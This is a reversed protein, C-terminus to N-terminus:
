FGGRLPAAPADDVLEGDENVVQRLPLTTQRPNEVSLNGGKTLWFMSAPRVPEPEKVKVQYTTIVQGINDVKFKLHLTLEGKAEGRDLAHRRLEGGLEFMAQSLDAAAQGDGLRTLWHAFSRAGEQQAQETM